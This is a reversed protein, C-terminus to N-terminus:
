LKRSDPAKEICDNMSRRLYLQILDVIPLGRARTYKPQANHSNLARIKKNQLKKKTFVVNFASKQRVFQGLTSKSHTFKMTYVPKYFIEFRSRKEWQNTAKM